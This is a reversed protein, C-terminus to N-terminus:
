SASGKMSEAARKISKRIRKYTGCRCLNGSMANSIDEDNPSHNKNLLAVASMIQGAQCYGCQATNEKEWADQVPHEGTESLGEITSIESGGAAAIPTICSRAASGNLLVTCCGCQGIGCGFKTGTMGLEDRLVWLLPMDPEVDVEQRAGNIRLNFKAMIPNRKSFPERPPQRSKPSLSPAFCLRHFTPIPFSHDPSIPKLAFLVQTTRM